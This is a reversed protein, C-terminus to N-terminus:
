GEKRLDKRSVPNRCKAAEAMERIEDLVKFKNKNRSATANVAAAELRGQLSVLRRDQRCDVWARSGGPCSAWTKFKLTEEDSRSVWGAWGKKGQAMKLEQGEGCNSPPGLNEAQIQETVM